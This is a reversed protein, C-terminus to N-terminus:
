ELLDKLVKTNDDIITDIAEQEKKLRFLEDTINVSAMIAAKLPNINPSLRYIDRMKEDVYSAIAKMYEEEADGRISYTQGLIQVEISRVVM